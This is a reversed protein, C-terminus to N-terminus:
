AATRAFKFEIEYGLKKYLRLRQRAQNQVWPHWEDWFDYIHGHNKDRFATLVRGTRQETKGQARGAAGHLLVNARPVDLGEDALNVAILAPISGERFADLIHRRWRKPMRSSVVKVQSGTQRIISKAQEITSVLALVFDGERVHHVVGRAILNNRREHEVLGLAKVAHWHRHKDRDCECDELAIGAAANIRALLMPDPEFRLFTVRGGVIRGDRELDKRDIRYVIPGILDYVDKRREDDRNPTASLGWVHTLWLGCREIIARWTAAAVHHCEDVVLIAVEDLPLNKAGSPHAFHIPAGKIETLRSNRPLDLLLRFADQAQDLQDTTNAIWLVRGAPFSERVALLADLVAAAGIVTKGSRCPAQVIGAPANLLAEAAHQQYGYLQIM